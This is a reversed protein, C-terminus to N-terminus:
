MVTGDRCSELRKIYDANCDAGQEDIFAQVTPKVDPHHCTGLGHLAYGKTREDDPQLIKVLTRFIADLIKREAEPLPPYFDSQDGGSPSPLNRLRRANWFTSNLDCWWMYFCNEMVEVTSVSVFDAYVFYISEIANIQKSLEIRESSPVVLCKVISPEISSSDFTRWIGNDIQTLNYRSSIAKFETCMRAFYDVIIEESSITLDLAGDQWARQSEFLVKLWTAYDVKSLDIQKDSM